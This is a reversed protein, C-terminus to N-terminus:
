RNVGKSLLLVVYEVNCHSPQLSVTVSQRPLGSHCNIPVGHLIFIVDVNGHCIADNLRPEVASLNDVSSVFLAHNEYPWSAMNNVEYMSLLQGIGLVIITTPQGTVSVRRLLDAEVQVGNLESHVESRAVVVSEGLTRHSVCLEADSHNTHLRWFEV